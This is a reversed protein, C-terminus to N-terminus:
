HEFNFNVEVLIKKEVPQGDDLAPEFRWAQVAKIANEDLGHGLGKEIKVDRPRGDTGVTMSLNVTGEIHNMRADDSYDPEPNYVPSPNSVKPRFATCDPVYPETPVPLDVPVFRNKRQSISAAGVYHEVGDAAVIKLRPGERSVVSVKEGCSLYGIPKSVCANLFLPTQRHKNGLSCDVYGTKAAGNGAWVLASLAVPIWFRLLRM